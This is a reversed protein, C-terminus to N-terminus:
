KVWFRMGSECERQVCLWHVQYCGGVWVCMAHLAIGFANSDLISVMCHKSLRSWLLIWEGLKDLYLSTFNYLAVSQTHTHTHSLSFDVSPTRHNFVSIKESIDMTSVVINLKKM